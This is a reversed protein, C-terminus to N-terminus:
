KQKNIEELEQKIKEAQKQYEEAKDTEGLANYVIGLNGLVVVEESRGGTERYIALAQELFDIAKGIEGLEVYAVGLNTLASGEGRRDGKERDISLAQEYFDIAKGIEGLDAYALGLNGLANGEGRRDGIERAIELHQEHFEIAKRAEGLAAWANGLNGLATGEGRRDGIERDISLAQEYFEIAKRAEGLDAYALGLNGLANGEGRRDGIERAISLVQEYFEIAKRAEGLDTYALGLNNLANGEGHKDGIESSISKAQEHFDIAKGTEGLDAWANGLNTLTNGEGRRDGIELDISLAQEYFDIAKRAEGLNKYAVGLNGLDAGEGRRDGIERSIMLAQEYFDIAKRAEGLDAWALGLNGLHRGEAERDKLIKSAELAKNLWNIKERAHLRLNLCFTWDGYESCLRANDESSEFNRAAWAQGAVIHAWERDLLQLGKLINDNGMLYFEDAMAPINAFYSAHQLEAGFREQKTLYGRAFEGLLDHLRYRKENQDFDLLSYRYLRRLLREAAEIEMKWVAAAAVGMFSDPFVGLERWAKKQNESLCEYSLGLTAAVEPEVADSEDHAQKLGELRRAELQKIYKAVDVSENVALFSGALRLALPLYGCLKALEGAKGGIRECLKVLFDKAEKPELMGLRHTKLGPLPFNWRSTVLLGCGDSPLLAQVQAADRANDLFVLVKKESLVTQYGRAIGQEDLGRLDAEPEFSLIIQRMAEEPTIPATTGKMDIFVQGDPYQDKVKHAVVLGLATKGVGGMGTLGSIATMRKRKFDALITKIQEKRGTFDRPANPIQPVLSRSGEAVPKNAPQRITEAMGQLTELIETNTKENHFDAIARQNERFTEDVLALEETLIGVYASVAPEILAVKPGLGGVFIESLTRVFGAETPHKYFSMVAAQLSPLSSTGLNVFLSDTLDKFEPKICFRKETEELAKILKAQDSYDSRLEDVFGDGLKTGVYGELFAIGLKGLKEKSIKMFVFEGVNSYTVEM